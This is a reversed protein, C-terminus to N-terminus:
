STQTIPQLVCSTSWSAEESSGEPFQANIQLARELMDQYEADTVERVGFQGLHETYFQTDLLTYGNLTLRGVLHVFAVKSANTARSFMSEGFFVGGLALGYLGGVLTDGEWCEISHAFGMRHLENYVSRIQDNIWTEDRDTCIKQTPGMGREACHDLVRSFALNATVRFPEKRLFKRLKRPIRAEELPLIGRMQPLVWMAHADDHTRAMPFYGLTYAKLIEEPEIEIASDRPMFLTHADQRRFVVFSKAFVRESM